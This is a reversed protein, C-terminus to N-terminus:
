AANREHVHDLAAGILLDDKIFLENRRNQLQTRRSSQRGDRGFHQPEEV